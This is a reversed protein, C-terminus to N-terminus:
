KIMMAMSNIHYGALQGRSDTLRVLFTEDGDGNEFKTHYVLTVMHGGTTVNDRWGTQTSTKVTGLKRNVAGLFAASDDRSVASKWDGAATDYIDGLAGRAMQERFKSVVVEAAKTDHGVSCASVVSVLLLVLALRLWSM